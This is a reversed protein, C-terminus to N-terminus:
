QNSVKRWNAKPTNRNQQKAHENASVEEGFLSQLAGLRKRVERKLMWDMMRELWKHKARFHYIYTLHSGCATDKHRITASFSQFFPPANTLKVAAVTGRQFSVYETEMPMWGTKWNGVCLSRVSLGATSAGGLLRAESLMTDWELRKDYNHILDFVTTSNANLTISLATRTM